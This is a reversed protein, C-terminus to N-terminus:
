ASKSSPPPTVVSLVSPVCPAVVPCRGTPRLVFPSIRGFSLQGPARGRAAAPKSPPEAASLGKQGNGDPRRGERGGVQGGRAAASFPLLALPDLGRSPHAARRGGVRRDIWAAWAGSRYVSRRSPSRPSRGQSPSGIGSETSFCVPKGDKDRRCIRDNCFRQNRKFAVISRSRRRESASGGVRAPPAIRQGEQRQSGGSTARLRSPPLPPPRVAVPSLPRHAASGGDLGSTM